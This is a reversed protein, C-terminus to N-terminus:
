NVAISKTAIQLAAFVIWVLYRNPSEARSEDKQGAEVRHRPLSSLSSSSGIIDSPTQYQHSTKATMVVIRHRYSSGLLLLVPSYSLSDRQALSPIARRTTTM